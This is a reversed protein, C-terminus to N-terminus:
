SEKSPCYQIYFLVNELQCADTSADLMITFASPNQLLRQMTRKREAIAIHRIFERCQKDSTYQETMKIGNKTHLAVLDSFDTMTRLNQIPYFATNFLIKLQSAMADSMNRIMAPLSAASKSVM